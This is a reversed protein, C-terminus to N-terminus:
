FDNHKSKAYDFGDPYRAKLKEINQEMIDSLDLGCSGALAALYWCVDGLEKKVQSKDLKHKHFIAKKFLETVEGVEGGLGVVNWLQMFEEQTLQTDPDTVLTRGALKQYETADM